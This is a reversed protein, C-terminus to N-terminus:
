LVPWVSNVTSVPGALLKANSMSPARPSNNRASPCKFISAKPKTCSSPSKAISLALAAVGTVKDSPLVAFAVAKRMPALLRRANAPKFPPVSLAIPSSNLPTSKPRAKIPSDKGAPLVAAGRLQVLKCAVASAAAKTPTSPRFTEASVKDISILRAPVGKPATTSKPSLSGSSALLSRLVANVTAVLALSAM